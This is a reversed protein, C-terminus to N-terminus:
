LPDTGLYYFIYGYLINRAVAGHSWAFPMDLPNKNPLCVSTYPLAMALAAVEISERWSPEQCKNMLFSELMANISSISDSMPKEPATWPQSPYWSRILEMVDFDESIGADHEDNMQQIISNVVTSIWSTIKSEKFAPWYKSAHALAMRALSKADLSTEKVAGVDRSTGRSAERSTGRSTGRSAERSTGRSAERTDELHV